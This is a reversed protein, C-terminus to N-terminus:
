PASSIADLKVRFTFPAGQCADAPDARMRLPGSWRIVAVAPADESGAAVTLERQDPLSADNIVDVNASADCGPRESRLRDLEIDTVRVPFRNENQVTLLVTTANGPTLGGTSVAASSVTLGIVSGARAQADGEGTLTWAAWAAGAAVVGVVLCIALTTSRKISSRM